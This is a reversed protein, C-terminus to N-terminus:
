RGANRAVYDAVQAAEAGELLNAPMGGPGERIADLVARRTLRGDDLSGGASGESGAAALKHCSGCREAFLAGPGSAPSGAGGGGGCGALLCAALLLGLVWAPALPAM